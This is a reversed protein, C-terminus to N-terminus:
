DFTFVNRRLDVGQKLVEPDIGFALPHVLVKSVKRWRALLHASRFEASDKLTLVIWSTTLVSRLKVDTIDHWPIQTPKMLSYEFGDPSLGM